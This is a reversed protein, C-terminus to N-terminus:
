SAQADPSGSVITAGCGASDGVKIVHKGNSTHNATGNVSSVGHGKIPCSHLDGSVCVIKGNLIYKGTASIMSGGHDSSDGLRVIPSPM